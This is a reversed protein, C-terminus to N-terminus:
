FINGTEAAYRRCTHISLVSRAYSSEPDHGAKVLAQKVEDDTSTVTVGYDRELFSLLESPWPSLTLPWTSVHYTWAM